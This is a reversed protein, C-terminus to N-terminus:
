PPFQYLHHPDVLPLLFSMPSSFLPFYPSSFLSSDGLTDGSGMSLSAVAERAIRLVGDLFFSFSMPLCGYIELCHFVCSYSLPFGFM